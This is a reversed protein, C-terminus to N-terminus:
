GRVRWRGVANRREDKVEGSPFKEDPYLLEAGIAEAEFDRALARLARAADHYTTVGKGEEDVPIINLEIVLLSYRM